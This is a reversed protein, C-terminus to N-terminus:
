ACKMMKNNIWQMDHLILQKIMVIALLIGSCIYHLSWNFGKTDIQYDRNGLIGEDYFKNEFNKLQLIKVRNEKYYIKKNALIDEKNKEYHIKRKCSTEEKNEEYYKRMKTLIDGKNKDYFLKKEKKTQQYHKRKNELIQERNKNHYDKKRQKEKKNLEDKIKDMDTKSRCMSKLQLHKLLRQGEWGCVSCM